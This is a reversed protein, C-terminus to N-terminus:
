EYLLDATLILTKNWPSFTPFLSRILTGYVAVFGKSIFNNHAYLLKTAATFFVSSAFLIVSPLFSVRASCRLVMEEEYRCEMNQVAVTQVNPVDSMIGFSSLRGSGLNQFQILFLSIVHEFHLLMITAYTLGPSRKKNGFRPLRSMKEWSKCWFPPPSNSRSQAPVESWLSIHGRRCRCCGSLAVFMEATMKHKLLLAFCRCRLCKVM